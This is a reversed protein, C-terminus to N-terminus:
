SRCDPGIVGRYLGKLGEMQYVQAFGHFCTKYVNGTESAQMRVLLQICVLM